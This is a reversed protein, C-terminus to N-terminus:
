PQRAPTRPARAGFRPAHKDGKYASLPKRETGLCQKLFAIAEPLVQDADALGPTWLKPWDVMVYGDYAIGTLLEMLRAIGVNGEGLRKYENLVGGDVAGDVVHVLGLRSGLRPVAVSSRDGATLGHLPNWCAQLAPHSVADLVFWLDKSGALEGSNEILITVQHQGAFQVLEGLAEAIRGLTEPRNAGTPMDGSFVRVTPCRLKRALEIHERVVAKSDAVAHPRRDGFSASTGLCVLAVGTKDCADVVADCKQVLEAHHPLHLEGQLGRLEIGQYGLKVATEFIKRLDWTPCCISSFGVKM